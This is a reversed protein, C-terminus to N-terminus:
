VVQPDGSPFHNLTSICSGSMGYIASFKRPDKIERVECIKLRKRFQKLSFVQVYLIYNEHALTDISLMGPSHLQIQM